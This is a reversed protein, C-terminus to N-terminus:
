LLNAAYSQPSFGVLIGGGWELVPRKILTPYQTCLRLARQASLDAKEADSIERWTTSRKNVLTQWNIAEIWAGIKEAAIGDARVDHYAYEIGHDDLWRRAKRCTDCSSLGFLTSSSTKSDSM